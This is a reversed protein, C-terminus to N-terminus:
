GHCRRRWDSKDRHFGGASLAVAALLAAIEGTEELRSFVVECAQQEQHRHERRTLREARREQDAQAALEAVPGRGVYERRVVGHVRRSQCYYRHKSRARREWSM